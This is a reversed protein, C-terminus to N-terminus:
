TVVKRSSILYECSVTRNVAGCVLGIPIGFAAHRALTNPLLLDGYLHILLVGAYVIASSAVIGFALREFRCFFRYM